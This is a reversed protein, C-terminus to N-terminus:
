SDKFISGAIRVTFHDTYENLHWGADEFVRRSDGVDKKQVNVSNQGEAIANRVIANFKEIRMAIVPSAFYMSQAEITTLVKM